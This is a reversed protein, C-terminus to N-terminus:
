LQLCNEFIIYVLCNPLIFKVVQWQSKATAKCQFFHAAGCKQLTFACSPLYYTPFFIAGKAPLTSLIHLVGFCGGM